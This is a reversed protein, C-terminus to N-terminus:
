WYRWGRIAFYFHVIATSLASVHPFDNEVKGINVLRFISRCMLFYSLSFPFDIDFTETLPLIKLSSRKRELSKTYM